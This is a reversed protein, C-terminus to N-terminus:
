SVLGITAGLGSLDMSKYNSLLNQVFNSSSFGLSSANEKMAQAIKGLDHLSYEKNPIASNLESVSLQGDGDSDYSNFNSILDNILSSDNSDSKEASTLESLSLSGNEDTDASSVLSKVEDEKAKSTDNKNSKDFTSAFSDLAEKILKEILEEISTAKSTETTSTTTINSLSDSSSVSGSVKGSSSSDGSSEISMGPPPGMQGKPPVASAIEQTTLQGNGDSDLSDFQDSLSKLFANSGSDDNSSISSLENESLGKIGDTDAANMKQYMQAMLLHINDSSNMSISSTM